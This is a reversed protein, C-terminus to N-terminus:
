KGTVAFIETLDSSSDSKGQSKIGDLLWILDPVYKIFGYLKAICKLVYEATATLLIVNLLKCESM